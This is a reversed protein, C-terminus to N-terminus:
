QHGEKATGATQYGDMRLSQRLKRLATKLIKKMNDIGIGLIEACEKVPLDAGYRLQLAHREREDLRTLAVSLDVRQAIDTALDIHQVVDALDALDNAEVTLVRGSRRLHDTLRCRAIRYLTAVPNPHEPHHPWWAFFEEFAQGLIEEGDDRSGAARALFRLVQDVHAEYFAALAAEDIEPIGTIESGPGAAEQGFGAGSHDQVTM